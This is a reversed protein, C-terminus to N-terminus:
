LLGVSDKDLNVLVKLVKKKLSAKLKHNRVFHIAAKRAQADTLQCYSVIQIPFDNVTFINPHVVKPLEM